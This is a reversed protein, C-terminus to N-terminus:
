YQARFNPHNVWQPLQLLSIQTKYQNYIDRERCYTSYTSSHFEIFTMDKDNLCAAARCYGKEASQLGRPCTETEGLLGSGWQTTEWCAVIMQPGRDAVVDISLWVATFFSQTSHLDSIKWSSCLLQYKDSSTVQETLSATLNFLCLSSCGQSWSLLLHM